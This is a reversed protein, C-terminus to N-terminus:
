TLPLAIHVSGGARESSRTIAVSGGHRTVISKVISLGLGTSPLTSDTKASLRRFPRFAHEIDKETFGPGDDDVRILARNGEPMAQITVLGGAPAHKIANTVLNDVAQMLLHGDGIVVLPDASYVHIRVGREQALPTNLAAVQEVLDPLSVPWADIALPDGLQRSREVSAALMTDLREIILMARDVQMSLGPRQTRKSGSEIAELLLMLNALPGRVDHALVAIQDAVNSQAPPPPRRQRRGSGAGNRCHTPRANRDLTAITM